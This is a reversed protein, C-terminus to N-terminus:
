QRTGFPYSLSQSSAFQTLFWRKSCAFRLLSPFFDRMVGSRNLSKSSKPNLHLEGVGALARLVEFGTVPFFGMTLLLMPSCFFSGFDSSLGATVSETLSCFAVSPVTAAILPSTAIAALEFTMSAEAGTAAGICAMSPVGVVKISVAAGTSVAGLTTSAAFAASVTVLITSVVIGMAVAVSVTPAVAEMVAARASWSTSSGMFGFACSGAEM